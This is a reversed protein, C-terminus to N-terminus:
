SAVPEEITAAAYRFCIAACSFALAATLLVSGAVLTGPSLDSANALLTRAGATM